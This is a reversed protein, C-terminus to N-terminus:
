WQRRIRPQEEERYAMREINALRQNISDLTARISDLKASVVEIDKNQQYGYQGYQPAPTIEQYQQPTIPARPLPREQVPQGYGYGPEPPYNAPKPTGFGPLGLNTDDPFPPLEGLDGLGGLDDDKKKWFALKSFFAM